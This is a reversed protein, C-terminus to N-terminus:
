VTLIEKLGQFFRRDREVLKEDVSLVQSFQEGFESSDARNRVLREIKDLAAEQEHQLEETEKEYEHLRAFFRVSQEEALDLMEIMRVKKLQQIRELINEAHSTQSVGVQNCWLLVIVTLWLHYKM